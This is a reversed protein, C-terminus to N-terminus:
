SGLKHLLTRRTPKVLIYTFTINSLISYFESVHVSVCLSVFRSDLSFVSCSAILNVNKSSPKTTYRFVELFCSIALLFNYFLSLPPFLKSVERGDFQMFCYCHWFFSSFPFSFSSSYSFFILTLFLLPIFQCFPHPV